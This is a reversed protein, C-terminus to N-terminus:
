VCRYGLCGLFCNHSHPDAPFACFAATKCELEVDNDHAATMLSQGDPVDLTIAEDEPTM